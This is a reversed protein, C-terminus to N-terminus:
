DTTYSPRGGGNDGWAYATQAQLLFSALLVLCLATKIIKRM